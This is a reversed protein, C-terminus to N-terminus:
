SGEVIVTPRHELDQRHIAIKDKFIVVSRDYMPIAFSSPIAEESNAFVVTIGGGPLGPHAATALIAHGPETYAENDFTFGQEDFTVPFEVAALFAAIYPDRAADGLILACRESLADGDVDGAKRELKEDDEFSSAVVKQISKYEKPTDGAPLISTFAKGHRTTATTPIIEDIPVKRFLHYDPDLEVSQPVGTVPVTV